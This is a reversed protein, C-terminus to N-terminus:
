VKFLCKRGFSLHLSQRFSTLMTYFIVIVKIVSENSELTRFKLEKPDANKPSNLLYTQLLNTPQHLLLCNHLNPLSM